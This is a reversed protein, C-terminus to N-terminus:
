RSFEFGDVSCGYRDRSTVPYLLMTIIDFVIYIKLCWIGIPSGLEQDSRGGAVGTVGLAPNNKQGQPFENQM